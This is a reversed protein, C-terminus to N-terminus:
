FELASVNVAMPIDRLGENNWARAQRCAEQLVWRGVSLILGCDEAIPIFQVPSIMGRDPHLWRLLAEMGTIKGTQLDIKPQYHLLFEQRGLACRLDSELSQREAL